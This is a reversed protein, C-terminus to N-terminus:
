QVWLPQLPAIRQRALEAFTLCDRGSDPGLKRTLTQLVNDITREESPLPGPVFGEERERERERKRKGREGEGERKRQRGGQIMFGSRESGGLRKLPHDGHRYM